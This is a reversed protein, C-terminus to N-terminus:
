IQRDRLQLGFGERRSRLDYYIVAKIAQWLPLMFVNGLFSVAYSILLLFPAPDVTQDSAVAAFGGQVLNTLLQILIVLPLTILFTVALILIIRWGNKQTLRWSRGLSEIAGVETEVALAVEPVAFRAALWLLLGLVLLILLISLLGIGILLGPDSVNPQPASFPNVGLAAFIAVFVIAIGIYAAIVVSFYLLGLLLSMWVFSWLRSNTFRKADRTTEPESTLEGFALRSIAASGAMYKGICYLLLVIWAPIILGLLAYYNQAVAFFGVIFAMVVIPLIVWLTALLATGFYQKFHNSYLRLGASVVNGVSLPGQLNSSATM